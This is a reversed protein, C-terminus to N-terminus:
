ALDRKQVIFLAPAGAPQDHRVEVRCCTRLLRNRAPGLYDPRAKDRGHAQGHSQETEVGTGHGGAPEGQRVKSVDIVHQIPPIRDEVDIGPKIPVSPGADHDMVETTGEPSGLRDMPLVQAISVLAQSVVEDDSVAIAQSVPLNVHPIAPIVLQRSGMDHARGAGVVIIVRDADAQDAIPIPMGKRIALHGVQDPQDLPDLLFQPDRSIGDPEVTIQGLPDVIRASEEGRALELLLEEIRSM